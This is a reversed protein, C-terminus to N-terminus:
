SCLLQGHHNLLFMIYSWTGKYNELATIYALKPPGFCTIEVSPRARNWPANYSRNAPNQTHYIDHKGAPYIRGDLTWSHLLHPMNMAVSKLITRCMYNLLVCQGTSKTRAYFIEPPESELEQFWLVLDLTTDM